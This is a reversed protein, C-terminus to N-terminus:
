KCAKEVNALAETVGSLSYTDTTVNGRTSAAKVVLKAGKKLAAVFEDEKAPNKLWANSGKAVLDYAEGDVDAAPTSGDKMGFGMIVSVEHRVHEAPRNSIFVYADDRKLNSPARTKPRALTYCTKNKGATEFVNWDGFSGVLASKPAASKHEAKRSKSAKSKTQKAAHSRSTSSKAKSSEKASAGSVVLTLVLLAPAARQILRIM